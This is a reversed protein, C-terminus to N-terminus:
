SEVPTAGLEAEVWTNIAQTYHDRSSEMTLRTGGDHPLAFVDVGGRSGSFSLTGLCGENERYSVRSDHRNVTGPYPWEESFFYRETLALCEDPTKSVLYDV